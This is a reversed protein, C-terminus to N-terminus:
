AGWAVPLGLRRLEGRLRRAAVSWDYALTAQEHVARRLEGGHDVHTVIAAALREPDDAPVVLTPSVREVLEPLAGTDTVICPIGRAIAQLGVGSQTADKYPLLVLRAQDLLEDLQEDSVYEERLDVNEVGRASEALPGRGAVTLRVDALDAPLRRMAELATDVGKYGFLRGFLLLRRQPPVPAPSPAMDAGHPVVGVPLRRLLPRLQASLRSSHLLICACTLESFRAMWRVHAPFTSLEDGSHTQPDHLLLATPFALGLTAYRPDFHAHVVLAGVRRRALDGHLRRVDRLLGGPRARPVAVVQVGAARAGALAAERDEESGTFDSGRDVYYLTVSAGARALSAAQLCSYRLFAACLIAIRGPDADRRALLRRTLGACRHLLQGLASSM